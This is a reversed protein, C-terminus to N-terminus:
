KGAGVARQQEWGLEPTSAWPNGRGCVQGRPFGPAPAAGGGHGDGGGAAPGHRGPWWWDSDTM